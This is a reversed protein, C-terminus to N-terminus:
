RDWRQSRQRRLERYVVAAAGALGVIALLSLIPGTKDAVETAIPSAIHEASAQIGTGLVSAGAAISEHPNAVATGLVAAGTIVGKNRWLMNGVDDVTGGKAIAGVAKTTTAKASEEGLRKLVQKAANKSGARVVEGTVTRVAVKGAQEVVESVIGAQVGSASVIAISLAVAVYVKKLM